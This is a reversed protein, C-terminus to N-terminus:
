ELLQMFEQETIVTIGLKQAKQLKSKPKNGVILYSTKSSVDSGVIGGNQEIVEEMAERSISLSGTIVIVANSLKESKKQVVEFVPKVHELLQTIQQGNHENNIYSIISDATVEGIDPLELLENRTTNLFKEINGYHKALSKATTEGVEEIGLAFIFKNLSPAKSVDLARKINSCTKDGYGQIGKLREIDCTYLDSFSHLLGLSLLDKVTAEGIGDIDMGDRSAFHTFRYLKQDPCNIGGSCIHIKGSDLKVVESGCAPCKDPASYIVESGNRREKLAGVIEPVVDGARRIIVYDGVRIDRDRADSENHLTANTVTVGGVFVPEMRAVPTIKGTRGIQNEIACVRTVAEQPPFKYARAWRPSTSIYGLKRQDSVKNLKLVMGDIDFDLTERDKLAQELLNKIVASGQAVTFFPSATFGLEQIQKLQGAQTDAIPFGICEGFGYAFFVLKRESVKRPDLQRVSGAAANRTNAFPRENNILREKNIRVFEKKLMMIEGRVEIKRYSNGSTLLTLPINRITKIQATVDEGESGDGRTAAVSYKNNEFTINCSLGDFKYELCYEVDDKPISLSTAVTDLFLSAEELNLANSLSLMPISHKVPKFGELIKGGVRQTPSDHATLEPHQKEFDSLKRYMVDYESDSIEPDDLVYYKYAHHSVLKKMASYSAQLQQQTLTSM